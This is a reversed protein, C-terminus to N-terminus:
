NDPWNDNKPRKQTLATIASVTAAAVLLQLPWSDLDSEAIIQELTLPKPSSGEPPISPSEPVQLTNM